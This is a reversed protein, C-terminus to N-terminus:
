KSVAFMHTYGDQGYFFNEENLKWNVKRFSRFSKKNFQERKSILLKKLHFYSVCHKWKNFKLFTNNFQEFQSYEKIMKSKMM